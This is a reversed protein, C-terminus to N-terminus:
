LHSFNFDSKGKKIVKPLIATRNLIQGIAFLNLLTPTLDKSMVHNVFTVYRREPNSYYGDDGDYDWLLCDKFRHIKDEHFRLWNGHVIYM